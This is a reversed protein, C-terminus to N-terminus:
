NSNFIRKSKESQNNRNVFEEKKIIKCNKYGIETHNKCKKIIESQYTINQNNKDLLSRYNM